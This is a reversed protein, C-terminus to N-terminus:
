QYSVRPGRRRAALMWVAAGTVVMGIGIWQSTALGAAQGRKDGRLFEVLFRSVGEIAFYLAVSQGAFKRRPYLWYLFSFLLFGDLSQIIQTPQLAVGLPTGSIAAAMPDTFTIGWWADTPRGYCCGSMLCGIRGIGMGLAAATLTADLVDMVPLRHRRFLWAATAVGVVVGGLVVRGALLFEMASITGARFRPWEVIVFTLRAGIEGAICFQFAVDVMRGFPVGVRSALHALTFIAALYALLYFVGYTPLTLWDTRLLLPHV